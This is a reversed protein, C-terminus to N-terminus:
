AVTEVERVEAPELAEVLLAGLLRRSRFRYGPGAHALDLNTSAKGVELKRRWSWAKAVARPVHTEVAAENAEVPNSPPMIKPRGDRKRIALPIIVRITTPAVSM